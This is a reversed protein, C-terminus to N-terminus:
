PAGNYLYSTHWCSDRRCLDEILLAYLTNDHFERSNFSLYSYVYRGTTLTDTKDTVPNHLLVCLTPRTGLMMSDPYFKANNIHDTIFDLSDRDYIMKPKSCFHQKFCRKDILYQSTSIDVFYYKGWSAKSNYVLAWDYEPLGSDDEKRSDCCATAVLALLTLIFAPHRM